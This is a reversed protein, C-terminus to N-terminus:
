IEPNQRREGAPETRDTGLHIGAERPKCGAMKAFGTSLFLRNGLLELVVWRDSEAKAWAQDWYPPLPPHTHKHTHTSQNTPQTDRGSAQPQTSEAEYVCLFVIPPKLLFNYSISHPCLLWYRGSHLIPKDNRSIKCPQILCWLHGKLFREIRITKLERATFCGFQAHKDLSSFSGVIMTNIIKM